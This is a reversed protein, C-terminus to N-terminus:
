QVEYITLLFASGSVFFICLVTLITPTFSLHLVSPPLLSPTSKKKKGVFVWVFSGGLYSIGCIRFLLPHYVYLLVPFWVSLFVVLPIVVSWCPFSILVAHLSLCFSPTILSSLHFYLFDFRFKVFLSNSKWFLVPLWAFVFCSDLGSIPVGAGVYCLVYCWIFWFGLVMVCVCFVFSWSFDIFIEFICMWCIEFNHGARSYQFM